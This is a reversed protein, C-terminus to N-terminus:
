LFGCPIMQKSHLPSHAKTSRRGVAARGPTSCPPTRPWARCWTTGPSTGCPTSSRTSRRPAPRRTRRRGRHAPARLRPRRPARRRLVQYCCHCVHRFQFWVASVTRLAFSFSLAVLRCWNCCCRRGALDIDIRRRLGGGCGDLYIREANARPPAHRPSASARRPLARVRAPAVRKRAAPSTPQSAARGVLLLKSARNRPLAKMKRQKGGNQETV